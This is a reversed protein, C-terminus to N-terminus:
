VREKKLSKLFSNFNEDSLEELKKKRSEKLTIFHESFNCDVFDTIDKINSDSFTKYEGLDDKITIIGAFDKAVEYVKGNEFIIVDKQNKDIKIMIEDAKLYKQEKFNNYLEENLDHDIKKDISRKTLINKICVVKDGMKM